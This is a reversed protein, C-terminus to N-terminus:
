MRTISSKPRSNATNESTPLLHCRRSFLMRRHLTTDSIELASALTYPDYPCGSYTHGCNTAGWEGYGSSRRPGDTSEPNLLVIFKYRKPHVSCVTALIFFGLNGPTREVSCYTPHRAINKHILYVHNLKESRVFKSPTAVQSNIPTLSRDM